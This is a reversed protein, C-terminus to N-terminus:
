GFWFILRLDESKAFSQLMELTEFFLSPLSQRMTRMEGTKADCFILDYDYDLLEKLSLWSVYWDGYEQDRDCHELIWDSAGDPLGRPKAIVPLGYEENRIGSLFAFVSYFRDGFVWTREFDGHFLQWKGDCGRIECFCSMDLGM